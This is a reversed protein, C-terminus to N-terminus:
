IVKHKNMTYIKICALVNKTTTVTNASSMLSLNM